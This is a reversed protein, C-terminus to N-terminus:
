VTTAEPERDRRRRDRSGQYHRRQAELMAADAGKLLDDITPREGYPSVFYGGHMGSLPCVQIMQTSTDIFTILSECLTADADKLFICFEDGGYRCHLAEVHPPLDIGKILNSIEKVCTNAAAHGHNDNTAKFDKVDLYICSVTSGSDYWTNIVTELTDLADTFRWMGTLACTRRALELSEALEAMVDALDTANRMLQDHNQKGLRLGRSAQCVVEALIVHRFVKTAEPDRLNVQRVIESLPRNM